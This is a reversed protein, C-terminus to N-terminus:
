SIDDCDDGDFNYEEKYCELDCNNNNQMETPCDSKILHLNFYILCLNLM